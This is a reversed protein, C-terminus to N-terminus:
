QSVAIKKRSLGHGVQVGVVYFGAPIGRTSWSVKVSGPGFLGDVVTAVQRGVLDYVRISGRGSHPMSLVIIMESAVRDQALIRFDATCALRSRPQLGRAGVTMEALPRRWVQDDLVGFVHSACVAGLRINASTPLGASGVPAWSVGGDISVFLGYQTNAFLIGEGASLLGVSTNAPLGIDVKVWNIASSASRFFGDMTGAFVNDGNAVLSNIIYQTLGTNAEAWTTGDDSLGYIGGFSAGALVDGNAALLCSMELTQLGSSFGTWTTGGDDSRFIGDGFNAAFVKSGTAAWCEFRYDSVKVWSRGQDPSRFAGDNWTGAFIASGAAFLSTVASSTLPAPPRVWRTGNDSSVFIGSDTGAYISQGDVAFSYAWRGVPWNTQVWQARTENPLLVLLISGLIISPISRNM